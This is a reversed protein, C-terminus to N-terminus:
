AQWMPRYWCYLPQRMARAVVDFIRADDAFGAMDGLELRAVVRMRRGLLELSSDRLREAIEIIRDTHALREDVSEPGSIVDCHSALAAALAAEDGSQTALSLAEAALKARRDLAATFTLAVSLRALVMARTSLASDPLMTLTETLARIQERDQRAVEFGAPGSGLGLAAAALLGADGGRRATEAAALYATRAGAADGYALKADGLHLQRVGAWGPAELAREYCRAADEYALASMREDGAREWWHGAEGRYQPGALRLHEAVETASPAPERAVVSAIERHWHLRHAVSLNEYIADRVIEHTFRVTDGGTRTLLGDRIAEDM